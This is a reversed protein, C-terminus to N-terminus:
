EAEIEALAAGLRALQAEAGGGTLELARAWLFFRHIPYTLDAGIGGHYHQATHGVVHGAQAAQWKAIRAAAEAPREADLLWALRWVAGRLLEVEAYADAMRTAVAQFSGIPRGFQLREGVYAATRRLAEATVGLQLAAVCLPLHLDLWGAAGAGLLHDDPLAVGELALDAVPEGHTAIGEIRTIGAADLPLMALRAGGEAAVPLLLSAARPPLTVAQAMGALRWGGAERTARVAGTESHCAAIRSGDVLHPLVAEHLTADGFRAVAMAALLHRWLPVPCLFRGQQELVLALEVMGLGSGGDRDPLPLALLGTEALSRWLADDLRTGAEDLARIRADDGHDAFLGAALDATARQEETLSFDM